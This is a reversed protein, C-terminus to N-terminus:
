VGSFLAQGGEPRPGFVSIYGVLVSAVVGAGAVLGTALVTGAPAGALVVIAVLNNLVPVVGLVAALGLLALRYQDAVLVLGTVAAVFGVQIAVLGAVGLADLAAVIVPNGEPLGVGLGVTTTAADLAAAAMVALWLLGGRRSTDLTTAVHDLSRRLTANM